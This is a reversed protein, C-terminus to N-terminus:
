PEVHLRVVDMGDPLAAVMLPRPQRKAPLAMPKHMAGALRSVARAIDCSFM